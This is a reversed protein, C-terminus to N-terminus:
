FQLGMLMSVAVLSALLVLTLAVPPLGDRDRGEKTIVVRRPRIRRTTAEAYAAIVFGIALTLFVVLIAGVVQPLARALASRMPPSLMLHAPAALIGNAALAALPTM